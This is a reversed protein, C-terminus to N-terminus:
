RRVDPDKPDRGGLVADVDLAGDATFGKPVWRGDAGKPHEAPDYAMVASMAGGGGDRVGM